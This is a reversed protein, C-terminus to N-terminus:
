PIAIYTYEANLKNTINGKIVLYNSTIFAVTNGSEDKAPSSTTIIYDCGVSALNSRYIVASPYFSFVVYGDGSTGVYKGIEIKDQKKSLGTYVAGGAVPNVSGSIISRDVNEVSGATEAHEVNGVTEPICAVFGCFNKNARLDTINSASVSAASMPVEIKALAIDYVTNNRVPYSAQDVCIMSISGASLDLRLGIYYVKKASSSASLTFTSESDDYCFYGNIYASGPRVKVTLGSSPLVAFSDESKKFVGNGIFSAFYRAFFDASVAKNGVPYGSTSTVIETSDFMGYKLSM